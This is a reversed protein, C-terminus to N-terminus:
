AFLAALSWVCVVQTHKHTQGKDHQTEFSSVRITSYMVKGSPKSLPTFFSFLDPHISYLDCTISLSISNTRFNVYLNNPFFRLLIYSNKSSNKSITMTIYLWPMQTCHTRNVCFMNKNTTPNKKHRKSLSVHIFYNMRGRQGNEANCNEHVHSEDVESNVQWKWLQVQVTTNESGSFGDDHSFLCSTLTSRLVTGQFNVDGGLFPVSIEM